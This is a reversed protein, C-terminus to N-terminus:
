PEHRHGPKTKPNSAAENSVSAGGAPMRDGQGQSNGGIAVPARGPEGVTGWGEKPEPAGGVEGGGGLVAAQAASQRGDDTARPQGVEDDDPRKTAEAM